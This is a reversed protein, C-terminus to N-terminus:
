NEQINTNQERNLGHKRLQGTTNNGLHKGKTAKVGQTGRQTDTLGRREKHKIGHKGQGNHRLEGRAREGGQTGETYKHARTERQPQEM